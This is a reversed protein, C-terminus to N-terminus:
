TGTKSFMQVELPDGIFVNASQLKTGESGAPLFSDEAKQKPSFLGSVPRKCRQRFWAISGAINYDLSAIMDEGISQDQHIEQNLVSISHAAALAYFLGLASLNDDNKSIQGQM